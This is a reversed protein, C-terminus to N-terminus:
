NETKFFTLMSIIKTKDFTFISYTVTSILQEVALGIKTFYMLADLQRTLNDTFM